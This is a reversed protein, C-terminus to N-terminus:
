YRKGAARDARRLLIDQQAAAQAQAADQAGAGRRGLQLQPRLQRRLYSRQTRGRRQQGGRRWGDFLRAREARLRQLRRFLTTM